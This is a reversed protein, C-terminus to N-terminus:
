WSSTAGGGGSSGGGFGGGSFGGGGGSFGGGGRGGFGGGSVFVAQELFPNAALAAASSLIGYRKGIYLSFITWFLVMLMYFGMSGLDDDEQPSVLPAM